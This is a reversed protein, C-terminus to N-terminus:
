EKIEHVVEMRSSHPLRIPSVVKKSHERLSLQLTRPRECEVGTEDTNSRRRKRKMMATVHTYPIIIIGLGLAVKWPLALLLGNYFTPKVPLTIAMLITITIALVHIYVGGFLIARIETFADEVKAQNSKDEFITPSIGEVGLTRSMRRQVAIPRNDRNTSISISLFSQSGSKLIIKLKSIKLNSLVLVAANGISVLCYYSTVFDPLITQHSFYCFTIGTFFGTLSILIKLMIFVLLRNHFSPALGKFLSSVKFNSINVFIGIFTFVAFGDMVQIMSETQSPLINKKTIYLAAMFDSSLLLSVSVLAISLQNLKTPLMSKDLMVVALLVFVSGHLLILCPYLASAVLM